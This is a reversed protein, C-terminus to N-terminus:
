YTREPALLRKAVWWILAVPLVIMLAFKLAALMLGVIAGGVGIVIGLAAMGFVFMLFLAPVGVCLVLMSVLILKLLKRM